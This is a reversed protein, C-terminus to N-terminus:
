EVVPAKYTDKRLRSPGERILTTFQDILSLVSYRLPSPLAYLKQNYELQQPSLTVKQEHQKGTVPAPMVTQLKKGFVAAAFQPAAELLALKCLEETDVKLVSALRPIKNIDLHRHGSEVMGIMESSKIDLANAVQAQTLELEFRRAQIVSGVTEKISTQPAALATKTNSSMRPKLRPSAAIVATAVKTETTTAVVM